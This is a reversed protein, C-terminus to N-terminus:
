RSRWSVMFEDTSKKTIVLLRERDPYRDTDRVWISFSEGVKADSPCLHKGLRNIAAVRENVANRLNAECDSECHLAKTYQEVLLTTKNSEDAM